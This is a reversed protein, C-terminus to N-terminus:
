SHARRYFGINTITATDDVGYKDVGWIIAKPMYVFSINVACIISIFTLLVIVIKYIFTHKKPPFKSAVFVIIFIFALLVQVCFIGSFLGPLQNIHFLVWVQALVTGLVFLLLIKKRHTILFQRIGNPDDNM